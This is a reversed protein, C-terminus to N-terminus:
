QEAVVYVVQARDDGSTMRLMKSKLTSFLRM